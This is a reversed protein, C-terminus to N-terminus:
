QSKMLLYLITLTVQNGMSSERGREEEGREEEGREEEGREGDEGM